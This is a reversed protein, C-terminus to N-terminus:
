ESPKEMLKNIRDDLYEFKKELIFIGKQKKRMDKKAWDSNFASEICLDKSDEIKEDQKEIMDICSSFELLRHQEEDRLNKELKNIRALLPRIQENLEDLYKEFQLRQDQLRSELASESVFDNLDLKVIDIETKLVHQKSELSKLIEEYKEFREEADHTKDFHKRLETCYKELQQTKETVQNKHISISRQFSQLRKDSEEVKKNHLAIEQKVVTEFEDIYTKRKLVPIKKIGM